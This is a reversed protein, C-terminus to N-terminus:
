RIGDLLIKRKEAPAAALIAEADQRRKAHTEIEVWLREQEDPDPIPVEMNRMKGASINAQNISRVAAAKAQTQFEDANIMLELFEPKIESLNPVIRVLYSAFCYDGDLDFLGTKGVHEISNTRNFLLDGKNLRYAAFEEPAIDIFKMAGSDAMRGGAIENMRFIKYGVGDQNLSGNLGYQIQKSLSNISRRPYGAQYCGAVIADIAQTAAEVARRAEAERTEVAEIAKVINEQVRAPPLPIAINLIEGKSISAFGVNKHGSITDKQHELVCFLFKTTLRDKPLLKALGRGICIEDFPNFNLEGVPARVSMLLDGKYARRTVEATWVGSKKLEIEGFDKSGQYFPSGVGDTNYSSSPPSQGQEVSILEGLKVLPYKTIFTPKISPEPLSLNVALDCVTRTFDFLAATPAARLLGALPSGDPLDEAAEGLFARRFHHAAKGPPEDRSELGSTYLAGGDYPERLFVMGEAGRRQSWKYGLFVQEGAKGDPGRLVTTWQPVIEGKKLRGIHALAFYVFKSREADRCHRLFKGRLEAWRVDEAQKLFSRQEKRRRTEALGDFERQYAAFLPAAELEPPLEGAPDALWERYLGGDLGAAACYGALADSDAYDADNPPEGEIFLADARIRVHELHLDSRRELLLVITNTGTAIFASGGLEVIGRLLFKELLLARARQYIGANSLISAPLILGAIGGLALLQAAREVFLAEIESSSATLHPMLTFSNGRLGLHEKFEKVSYPPNAILVDLTGPKPLVSDDHDLGDAHLINADGAGHLFLAIKATRALRYDKEVGWVCDRAWTTNDAQPLELAALDEQLEEIAETLFHASGCAYDMVRPLVRLEGAEHTAAIRERLPLCRVIFRAIPVPTFFQGESQKFGSNLLLEFLNGLFAQKSTYKLRYGQFLEVVERVVQTNQEFLKRNHVEKFAFDNNTYFKLARFIKKVENRAMDRKHAMFADDIDKEEFYTIDEGLSDKMGRKYLRQLRDILDEPTDRHPFWQFDLIDDEGREEDVLKALIIACLRNFANEKDSVHNHRLIEMFQNFVKGSGNEGNFEKLDKRRRPRYGVSYPTFKDEFIGNDLFQGGYTTKWAHHLTERNHAHEFLPVALRAATHNEAKEKDEFKKRAEPTDIVPIIDWRAEIEGTLEFVQSSYICLHTASRDQQLYGFLQGGDEGTKRKEADHEGGLTKCEIILLPPANEQETPDPVRRLVTIDSKGGSAGRGVQYRKELILTAPDYGKTLLRCVCELVVFNEEHDFNSTTRDGLVIPKPYHITQRSIDVTIVYEGTAPYQFRRTWQGNGLDDFDLATLL